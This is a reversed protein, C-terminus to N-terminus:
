HMDFAATLDLLVLAAGGKQDLKELIDNRVRLLATKCSHHARYVSQFTELMDNEKLYTLLSDHVVRDLVKSIFPLKSVPRFNGLVQPDVSGKKLLPRALALKCPSPFQGTGLSRKILATLVPVLEPACQKLICTPLPDLECSKAPSKLLLSNVEIVAVCTFSAM